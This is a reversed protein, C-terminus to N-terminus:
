FMDVQGISVIDDEDAGCYSAKGINWKYDSEVSDLDVDFDAKGAGIRRIHLRSTKESNVTIPYKVYLFVNYKDGTPEFSLAWPLTFGEDGTEMKEITRELKRQLNGRVPM